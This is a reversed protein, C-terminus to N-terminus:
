GQVGQPVQMHRVSGQTIDQQARTTPASSRWTSGRTSVASVKQIGCGLNRTGCRPNAAAKKQRAASTQPAAPEYSRQNGTTTRLCARALTSTAASATSQSQRRTGWTRVSGVVPGRKWGLSASEASDRRTPFLCQNVASCMYHARKAILKPVRRRPLVDLAQM